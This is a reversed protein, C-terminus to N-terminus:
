LVHATRTMVASAMRMLGRVPAPLEAAGATVAMTAHDGEDRRMQEVVARSKQDEAPLRELHGSLHEVVQRETEAVFGLNWRDGALGACAGIAFAGGYWLPNLVSRHSGLAEIREACWRLHDNEEEAARRMRARVADNRATVSQAQYLAQACVEGVHNVRMLAGAERRGADDLEGEEVGDAPNARGTGPPDGFVTALADDAALLLRDLASYTRSTTM